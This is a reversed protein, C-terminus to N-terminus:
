ALLSLCAPVLKNAAEEHMEASPYYNNHTDSYVVKNTLSYSHSITTPNGNMDILQQPLGANSVCEVYEDSHPILREVMERDVFQPFAGWFKWIPLTIEEVYEPKRVSFWFLIKPPRIDNLLKIMDRTFNRKTEAVLTPIDSSCRLILDSFFDEATMSVNDAIRVGEMAHHTTRFRSNSQSRASLMQVIVLRAANIYNLLAANSNHYTPGAGGYGLNLSEIGLRETLIAPFPTKCLCGFTQAAGICAIYSGGTIGPGRFIGGGPYPVIGPLTYMEYDVIHKDREQYGM